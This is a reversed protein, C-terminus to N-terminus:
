ANANPANPSQPFAPVPYLQKRRTRDMPIAAAINGPTNPNAADAREVLSLVLPVPEMRRERHGYGGAGGAYASSGFVMTFNLSLANRGGINVPPRQFYAKM